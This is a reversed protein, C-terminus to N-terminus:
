KNLLTLSSKAIAIEPPSVLKSIYDFIDSESEGWFALEMGLSDGVIDQIMKDLTKSEDTFDNGGERAFVFYMHLMEGVVLHGILRIALNKMTREGKLFYHGIKAVVYEKEVEGKKEDYSLIFSM